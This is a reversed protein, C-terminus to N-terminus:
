NEGAADASRGLRDLWQRLLANVRDPAEDHPCHGAGEIPVFELRPSCGVFQQSLAFPILRDRTGWLLLVPIQIHNLVRRIPPSFRSSAMARIIQAFTRAAGRDRAPETLIEVLESDIAGPDGWALGAWRRVVAPRRVGYFVAQLLWPSAVLAELGLVLPRLARPIIEERMSPDPLSIAVAGCVMEPYCEAVTLAIASGISNGVVVAPVGIFTQWFERVQEAWFYADYAVSPKCSAGFGVLDLAYVPHHTALAEMNSRWYGISAGFGHLLLIPPGGNVAPGPLFSYRTSWGRWVWDRRDGVRDVWSRAPRQPVPPQPDTTALPTANM